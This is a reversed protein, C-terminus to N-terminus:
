SNKARSSQRHPGLPPFYPLHLPQLLPVTATRDAASRSGRGHPVQYRTPDRSTRFTETSLSIAVSAGEMMLNTHARRWDIADLAIPYLLSPTFCPPHRVAHPTTNLLNHLADALEMGLILLWPTTFDGTHELVRAFVNSRDFHDARSM